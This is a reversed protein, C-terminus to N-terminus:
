VIRRQQQKTHQLMNYKNNNTTITKTIIKKNQKLGDNTNTMVKVVACPVPMNQEKLILLLLLVYHLYNDMATDVLINCTVINWRFDVYTHVIFKNIERDRMKERKKSINDGNDNWNINTTSLQLHKNVNEPWLHQLLLTVTTAVVVYAFWSFSSLVLFWFVTVYEYTCCM